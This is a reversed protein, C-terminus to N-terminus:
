LLILAMTQKLLSQVTFSYNVRSSVNYYTVPVQARRNEM